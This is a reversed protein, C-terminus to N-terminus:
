VYVSARDVVEENIPKHAKNTKDKVTFKQFSAHMQGNAIAGECLITKCINVVNVLQKTRVYFFNTNV